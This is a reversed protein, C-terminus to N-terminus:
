GQGRVRVRLSFLVRDSVAFNWRDMGFDGRHISGSAIVDCERAPHECSAPLITFVERRRVDRITLMGPLEGGSRLLQSPYADPVFDIRPFREADFFGSGRTLRTYSPHGLIEVTRTSLQLRVQHRGDPLEDVTGRADPFSGQLAQGWRTHLTFGIQSAVPDIEVALACAALLAIATGATWTRWAQRTCRQRQARAAATVAV